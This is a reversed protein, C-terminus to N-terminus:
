PFWGQAVLLCITPYWIYEEGTRRPLQLRRSVRVRRLRFRLFGWVRARSRNAASTLYRKIESASHGLLGFQTNVVSVTKGLLKFTWSSLCHTFQHHPNSKQPNSGWRRKFALPSPGGLTWVVLGFWWNLTLQDLTQTSFLCADSAHQGIFSSCRM